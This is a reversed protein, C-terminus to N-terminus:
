HPGGPRHCRGLLARVQALSIPKTLFAQAGLSLAEEISRRPTDASTITVFADSDIGRITRLAELGGMKPMHLDLFVLDPRERRFADVASQGDTATYAVIGGAKEVLARLLHGAMAVDEAIVVSPPQVM